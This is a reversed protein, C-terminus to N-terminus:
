SYQVSSLHSIKEIQELKQYNATKEESYQVYVTGLEKQGIKRQNMETDTKSNSVM